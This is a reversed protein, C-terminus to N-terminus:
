GQLMKGMRILNSEGGPSRLQVWGFMPACVHLWGDREEDITLVQFSKLQGVVEAAGGPELHLALGKQNVVKWRTKSVSGAARSVHEIIKKQREQPRDFTSFGTM